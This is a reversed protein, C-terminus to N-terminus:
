KNNNFNKNFHKILLKTEEEDFGENVLKESLESENNYFDKASMLEPYSLLSDQSILDEDSIPEADDLWAEHKKLDESSLVIDNCAFGIEGVACISALDNSFSRYINYINNRENIVKGEFSCEDIKDVFERSILKMNEHLLDNSKDICSNYLYVGSTHIDNFEVVDINKEGNLEYEFIDVVYNKPFKGNLNKIIDNVKMLIYEDIQHFLRTTMRSINYIQGDIIFCRYERKGYDDEIIEVKQSIIFDEDLHYKLAKRFVCKKDKLLEIPIVSSFDKIKTKIFIENGFEKELKEITKSKILNKGKIICTKRTTNYFSPWNDVKEIDELTTIPIGGNKKIEEIMKSKQLVGTRPFIIKDSIDVIEKEFNTFQNLDGNYLIGNNNKKCIAMEGISYENKLRVDFCYYM